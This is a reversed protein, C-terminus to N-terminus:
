RKPRPIPEVGEDTLLYLDLEPRIKKILTALAVASHHQALAKPDLKLISHLLAVIASEGFASAIDFRERMVVAQVDYNFLVAILADEFSGVTVLEYVFPDDPRRLKRIAAKMGDWNMVDPAGVRLVEFYQREGQVGSIPPPLYDAANLEEEADPEWVGPEHRYGGTEVADTIRRILPVFGADDADVKAQLAAMLALGPYAFYHEVINLAGVLRDIEKKLARKEDARVARSWQVAARALASWRDNRVSAIAYPVRGLEPVVKADATQKARSM